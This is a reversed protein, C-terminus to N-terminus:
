PDSMGVLRPEWTYQKQAIRDGAAVVRLHFLAQGPDGIDVPEGSRREDGIRHQQLLDSEDEVTRLKLYDMEVVPHMSPLVALFFIPLPEGCEKLDNALVRRVRFQNPGRRRRELFGTPRG